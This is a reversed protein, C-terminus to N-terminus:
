DDEVAYEYVLASVLLFIIDFAIVLEISYWVKELSKGNLVSQTVRVANILLPLIIPFLLIPLIVERLRTNIAMASFLTGVSVFGCTGAIIIFMLDPLSGKLDYNFFVIFMPLLIIELMLLFIFNSLFKSLFLLSRSTPTLLTGKIANNEKEIGFSRSLGLVGAFLFSIWMFSPIAKEVLERSINFSFNFIVIILLSFTFMSSFLEKTRYENKIDKILFALIKNM